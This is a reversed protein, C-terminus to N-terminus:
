KPPRVDIRESEGVIKWDVTTGDPAIGKVDKLAARATAKRKAVAKEDIAAQVYDGIAQITRGDEIKDTPTYGAWCAKRFPCQINHCWSEPEDRLYSQTVGSAMADVVSELRGQAADLILLAQEYSCTWTHFTKDAASRDVFFLM